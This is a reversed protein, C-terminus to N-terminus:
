AFARRMRARRVAAAALALAAWWPAGAVAAEVIRALSRGLGGLGRRWGGRIEGAIERMTPAPSSRGRAADADPERLELTLTALAALGALRSRQAELREIRERVRSLEDRLRLLDGLDAEDRAALLELLEAEVRRENRLRADLDVAQATVDEARLDESRVEGIERLEALFADLRDSAVRVVLTARAPTRADGEGEIAATVKATEVFEGRAPSLMARIRAAAAAPDPAAIEVVGRRAVIREVPGVIDPAEARGPDSIRHRPAPSAADADAAPGGALPPTRPAPDFRQADAISALRSAEGADIAAADPARSAAPAPSRRATGTNMALHLVFAGIVLAAAAALGGPVRRGLVPMIERLSGPEPRDRGAEELAAAALRGGTDEGSTLDRLGAEIREDLATREHENM